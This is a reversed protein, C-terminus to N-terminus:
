RGKPGAGLVSEREPCGEAEERTAHVHPCLWGDFGGDFIRAERFGGEVAMIEPYLIGFTNNTTHDFGRCNSCLGIQSGYCLFAAAPRESGCRVCRQSEPPM